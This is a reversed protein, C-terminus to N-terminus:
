DDEVKKDFDIIFTLASLRRCREPNTEEYRHAKDNHYVDLRLSHTVTM